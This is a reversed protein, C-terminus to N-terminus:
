DQTHMCSQVADCGVVGLDSTTKKCDQFNLKLYQMNRQKHYSLIVSVM